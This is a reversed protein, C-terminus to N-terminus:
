ASGSAVRRQRPVPRHDVQAGNVFDGFQAEWVVLRRPDASSMGYEFGLVALERCRATAPEFRAQDAARAPQAARVARRDRRRLARRPSPQLHRARHGSRQRAGPHGRAAPQRLGADRRLGLRHGRRARGDSARQDLLKRSAPAAHLGRAATAPTEAIARLREAPVATDASWDDGAWGLGKWVGGFALVKQARCASARPPRAGDRAHAQAGRAARSARAEPRRRREDALRERYLERWRRTRNRDARYMVPQTFRRITRSTTATGATASSTSSSMAAPVDARFGIALRAAQVAAEPDDGNVHFVPAQIVEAPDSPYRRSGTTRPRRPSASRTTSSSTSRAAPAHLGAARSLM